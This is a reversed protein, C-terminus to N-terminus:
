LAAAFAATFVSAPRLLPSSSRKAPSSPSQSFFSSDDDSARWGRVGLTVFVALVVRRRPAMEFNAKVGRSNFARRSVYTM